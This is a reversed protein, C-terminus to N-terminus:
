WDGMSGSFGGDDGPGVGFGPFGGAGRQGKRSKGKAKAKAKGGGRKGSKGQGESPKKPPVEPEPAQRLLELFAELLPLTEAAAAEGAGGDRYRAIDRASSEDARQVMRKLVGALRRRFELLMPVMAPRVHLRLWGDVTLGGKSAGRMDLRAEEHVRGGCLLLLALPPAPTCDRVYIKTTRVCEHYAVYCSKWEGGHLKCNLSSPHIAAVQPELATGDPERIHLRVMDPGCPGKKTVPAHLYAVQPFLAAALMAYLLEPPAMAHQNLAARVGDDGSRRGLSEVYSARLGHAVLGAQSVAELLQRKLQGIAQLTKISLFHDRAFDFKSQDLRNFKHYALLVGLHDSQLGMAFSRKAEDAQERREMPSMFPSRSALAAAMTLCEDPAGFCLGLLILKGLRADVPLKALLRGVDTLEESQSLAGLSTLEMVASRVAEADPPEPLRACFDAARHGHLGSLRLSKTRMVLQELAVRRVQARAHM